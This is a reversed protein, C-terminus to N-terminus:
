TKEAADDTKEAKKRFWTDLEGVVARLAQNDYLERSGLVAGTMPSTDNQELWHTIARREYSHGDAAIVPDRLIEHTIPCKFSPAAALIAEAKDPMRVRAQMREWRETAEKGRRIRAEVRERQEDQQRRIHDWQEEEQRRLRTERNPPPNGNADRPRRAGRAARAGGVARAGGAARGRERALIQAQLRIDERIQQSEVDDGQVLVDPDFEQAYAPEMFSPQEPPRLSRLFDIPSLAHEVMMLARGDVHVHVDEVVGTGRLHHVPHVSGRGTWPRAPRSM